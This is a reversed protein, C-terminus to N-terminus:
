PLLPYGPQGPGKNGQRGKNDEDAACEVHGPLRPRPQQGLQDSDSWRRHQHLEPAGATLPTAQSLRVQCIVDRVELNDLVRTDVLASHAELVQATEFAISAHEAAVTANAPIAFEDDRGVRVPQSVQLIAELTVPGVHQFGAVRQTQHTTPVRAQGWLLQPIVVAPHGSAAEEIIQRGSPAMYVYM